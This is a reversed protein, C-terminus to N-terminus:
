GKLFRCIESLSDSRALLIMLDGTGKEVWVNLVTQGNGLPMSGHSDLSPSNWIVNEADLEVPAPSAMSDATQCSSLTLLLCSILAPIKM